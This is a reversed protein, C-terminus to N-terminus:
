DKICYLLSVNKSRTEAWWTYRSSDNYSVPNGYNWAQVRDTYWDTAAWTVLLQHTHSKFDDEQTSGFTREWDPDINTWSKDIWRIVRGYAQTYESWGTPCSSAAFAMVATSPVTKENFLDATLTQGSIVTSAYVIWSIWVVLVIWAWITIWQWLNKIINKM